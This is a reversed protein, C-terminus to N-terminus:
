VYRMPTIVCITSSVVRAVIGALLGPLLAGFFLGYLRIRRLPIPGKYNEDNLLVLEDRSAWIVIRVLRALEFLSRACYLKAFLGLNKQLLIWLFNDPYVPIMVLPQIVCSTFLFTGGSSKRPKGIFQFTSLIGQNETLFYKDFFEFFKGFAREARCLRTQYSFYDSDFSSRDTDYLIASVDACARLLGSEFDHGHVSHRIAHFLSDEVSLDFRHNGIRHARKWIEELDQSVNGIAANETMLWNVDITIHQNTELFEVQGVYRRQSDRFHPPRVYSFGNELLYKECLERDDIRILIDLDTSIRMAPNRYFREAFPIGRIVIHDIHANDLLLLASSLTSQLCARRPLWSTLFVIRLKDLETQYSQVFEALRIDKCVELIFPYMRTALSLNLLRDPSGCKSVIQEVSVIAHSAQCYQIAHVLADIESSM